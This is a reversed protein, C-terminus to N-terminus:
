EEDLLGVSGLLGLRSEVVEVKQMGTYADDERKFLQWFLKHLARHGWAVPLLIPCKKAYAYDENLEDAKPFVYSILRGKKSKKVKTREGVLYPEMTATLQWSKGRLECADGGYVFDTLLDDLVHEQAKASRWELIKKNLGLYKACVTLLNECFVTYNCKGMWLWFYNFDIQDINKNIFMTIDALFRVNAGELVFHKIMHFFQYVLHESVGFTRIKKGGAEISIRNNPSEIGAGKLVDIKAGEYDEFISTHLEIKHGSAKNEYVFVNNKTEHEMVTYGKDEIVSSVKPRDAVDVLIDSDSSYRYLPNPYCSAIAQGKFVAYDIGESEIEQLIEMLNQFHRGQRLFTQLRAAEWMKLVDEPITGYEKASDLLIAALGNKCALEFITKWDADGFFGDDEHIQNIARKTLEIFNRDVVNM